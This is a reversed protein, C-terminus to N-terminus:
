YLLRGRIFTGLFHPFPSIRVRSVREPIGSKSLPAKLWEAVKGFGVAAVRDAEDWKSFVSPSELNDLIFCAAFGDICAKWHFCPM